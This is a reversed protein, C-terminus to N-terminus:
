YRHLYDYIKKSLRPSLLLTKSLQQETMSCLNALSLGQNIARQATSHSIDPISLIAAYPRQGDIKQNYSVMSEVSKQRDYATLSGCFSVPFQKHTDLYSLMCLKYFLDNSVPLDIYKINLSILYSKLLGEVNLDFPISYEPNLRIFAFMHKNQNRNDSKIKQKILEIKNIAISLSEESLMSEHTIVSLDIVHESNIISLDSNLTEDITITCGNFTKSLSKYLETSQCRVEIQKSYLKYNESNILNNYLAKTDVIATLNSNEALDGSLSFKANLKLLLSYIQAKTYKKELSIGTSTIADILQRQEFNESSIVIPRGKQLSISGIDAGEESKFYGKFAAAKSWLVISTIM